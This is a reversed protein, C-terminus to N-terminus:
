WAVAIINIQGKEEDKNRKINTLEKTLYMWASLHCHDGQILVHITQLWQPLLDIGEFFSDLGDHLLRRLTDM